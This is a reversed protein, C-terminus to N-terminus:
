GHEVEDLGLAVAAGGLCMVTFGGIVLSVSFAAVAAAIAGVALLLLGIATNSVATYAARDGEGAMDVLYTSRGQRVGHYAIMLAFLALPMAWGAGTEGFVLALVLAAAGAVGSWILVQRSSRDAMHGWVYSSLLAALSSALVLAGLASFVGDGGALLVLYPPALATGVLLGRAIVFRALQPREWLLRLPAAIDDVTEDSADESMGAMVAAAIGWLLAALAIASMVITPKDGWGTILLAAFGIVTVSAATSALGTTQG